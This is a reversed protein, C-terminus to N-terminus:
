VYEPEYVIAGIRSTDWINVSGSMTIHFTADKTDTPSVSLYGMYPNAASMRWRREDVMDEAVM